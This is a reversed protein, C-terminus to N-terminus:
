FVISIIETLIFWYRTNWSGHWVFVRFWAQRGYDTLKAEIVNKLVLFPGRVHPNHLTNALIDSKVVSVQSTKPALSENWWYYNLQFLAYSLAGFLALDTEHRKNAM